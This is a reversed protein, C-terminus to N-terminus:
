SWEVIRTRSYSQMMTRGDSTGAGGTPAADSRQGARGAEGDRGPRQALREYSGTVGLERRIGALAHRM